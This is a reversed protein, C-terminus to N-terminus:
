PYITCFFKGCLWLFKVTWWVYLHITFLDQPHPTFLPPGLDNSELGIVNEVTLPTRILWDAKYHSNKGGASRNVNELRDDRFINADRDGPDPQCLKDECRWLRHLVWCLVAAWPPVGTERFSLSSCRPSCRTLMSSFLSWELDSQGFHDSGEVAGKAGSSLVPGFNKAHSHTM